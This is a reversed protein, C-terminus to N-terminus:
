HVNYKSIWIIKNVLSLNETIVAEENEQAKNKSTSVNLQFFKSLTVQHKDSSGGSTDKERQQVNTKLKTLNVGRNKSM